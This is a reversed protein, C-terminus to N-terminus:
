PSMGIGARGLHPLEERIDVSFVIEVEGCVLLQVIPTYIMDGVEPGLGPM